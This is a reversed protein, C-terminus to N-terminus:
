GRKDWFAYGFNLFIYATGVNGAPTQKWAPIFFYEVGPEIFWSKKEPAPRRIQLSLHAGVQLANASEVHSRLQGSENEAAFHRILPFNVKPGILLATERPRHYDHMRLKFYGAIEAALLTFRTEGANAVSILDAGDSSRALTGNAGAAVQFGFAKGCLYHSYFGNVNAAPGALTSASNPYAALGGGAALGFEDLTYQAKLTPALLCTLVALLALRWTRTDQKLEKFM